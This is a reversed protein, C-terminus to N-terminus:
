KKGWHFFNSVAGGIAAAESAIAGEAKAVMGVAPADAKAVSKAAEDSKGQDEAASSDAAAPDAAPPDAPPSDNGGLGLMHEFGHIAGSAANAVTGAAKAAAAEAQAVKGPSAAAAEAGDAAGKDSDAASAADGDAAADPAADETKEESGGDMHFLHALGHVAGGVAGEASHVVGAAAGEAKQIATKPPSAEDYMTRCGNIEMPLYRLGVKLWGDHQDVGVVTSGWKAVNHADGDLSKSARYGLGTSKSKLESNDLVHTAGRPFAQHFKSIHGGKLGFSKLDDDNLDVASVASDYGHELFTQHFAGLGNDTLCKKFDAATKLKAKKEAAVDNAKQQEKDAKQKKKDDRNAQKAGAREKAAAGQVVVKEQDSLLPRISAADCFTHTGDPDDHCQVTYRGEKDDAPMAVICGSYWTGEYLAEVGSGVTPAYSPLPRLLSEPVHLCTGRPDKHCQVSWLDASWFHPGKVKEVIHGKLNETDQQIVEVSSGVGMKTGAPGEHEADAASVKGTDPCKKAGGGRHFLSGIGHFFGSVKDEVSHVAGSVKDEVSHVAGSVAAEVNHVANSIAGGSAAKTSAEPSSATGAATGASAVAKSNHDTVTVSTVRSPNPYTVTSTSYNAPLMTMTAPMMGVARQPGWAMPASSICPMSQMPVGAYSPVQAYSPYSPVAAVTSYSPYGTGRFSQSSPIAQGTVIPMTQLTANGNLTPMTPLPGVPM